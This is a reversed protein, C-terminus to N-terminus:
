DAIIILVRKMGNLYHRYLMGKKAFYTLHMYDSCNKVFHMQVTQKKNSCCTNLVFAKEVNDGYHFSDVVSEGWIFGRNNSNVLRKFLLDSIFIQTNKNQNLVNEIVAPLETISKISVESLQVYKMFYEEEILRTSQWPAPRVM